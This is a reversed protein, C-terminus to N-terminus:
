KKFTVTMGAFNGDPQQQVLTYSDRAVLVRVYDSDDDRLFLANGDRSWTGRERSEVSCGSYPAPQPPSYCTTAAFVGDSGVVLVGSYVIFEGGDPPPQKALIVPLAAGNVLALKYSGTVDFKPAVPNTRDSCAAIASCAIVISLSRIINM